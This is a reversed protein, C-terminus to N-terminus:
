RGAPCVRMCECCGGSANRFTSCAFKNITYQEGNQPETLARAPCENICIGCSECEITMDSHTPELEAETLCSALRVRPGFSPTILLSHWGLKGLRAAQGAHKYSFVAELFRTDLPCGAAPLPLAKLGMRRFDKTLDYAAKTLRGNLFDANRDLLDNISATGMIKEHSVLDLIEPYI